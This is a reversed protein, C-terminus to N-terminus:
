PQKPSEPATLDAVCERCLDVDGGLSRHEPCFPRECCECVERDECEIDCVSCKKM